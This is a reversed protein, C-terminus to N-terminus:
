QLGVVVLYFINGTKKGPLLGQQRAAALNLLAEIDLPMGPPTKLTTGPAVLFM